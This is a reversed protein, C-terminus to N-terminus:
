DVFKREFLAMRESKLAAQKSCMSPTGSGGEVRERDYTRGRARLTRDEAGGCYARRAGRGRSTQAVATGIPEDTAAYHAAVEEVVEVRRLRIAEDRSGDAITSSSAPRMRNWLRLRDDLVGGVRVVM